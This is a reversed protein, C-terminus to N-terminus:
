SKINGQARTNFISYWRFFSGAGALGRCLEDPVGFLKALSGVEVANKFHLMVIHWHAPRNDGIEARLQIMTSSNYKDKDHGGRGCRLSKQREAIGKIM